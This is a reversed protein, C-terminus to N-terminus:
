TGHNDDQAAALASKLVQELRENGPDLQEIAAAFRSQDEPQKALIAMKLCGLLLEVNTPDAAAADRNYKAALVLQHHKSYFVSLNYLLRGFHERTTIDPSNSWLQSNDRYFLVSAAAESQTLQGTDSYIYYFGVPQLNPILQSTWQSLTMAVQYNRANQSIWETLNPQFDEAFSQDNWNAPYWFCGWRAQMKKRYDSRLLAGASVVAVDRRLNDVVQKCLLPSFSNDEGALFIAKPELTELISTAYEDPTCLDRKNADAFNTAALYGAKGFVALVLTTVVATRLVRRDVQIHAYAFKVVSAAGVASAIFIGSYAPMLYGYLDLNYRSFEAAYATVVIAFFTMAGVISAFLKERLALSVFGVCALAWIMLPISRWMEALTSFLRVVIPTTTTLQAIPLTEDLRLISKLAAGISSFDGWNFVPNATERIPLYLYLALGLVTFAAFRVLVRWHLLRSRHLTFLVTLAPVVVAGLILYHNSLGVGFALGAFTAFKNESLETAACKMALWVLFLVILLNFAYVEARIAQVWVGYVLAFGLACALAFVHGLRSEPNTNGRLLRIAILFVMLASLAACVASCLNVLWQPTGFPLLTFLQALMVYAPFSPNHVIGLEYAAAQFAASDEWFIGPAMTFMYIGLPILFSLWLLTRKITM